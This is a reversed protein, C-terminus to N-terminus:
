LTAPVSSGAGGKGAGVRLATVTLIHVSFPAQSTANVPLALPSMTKCVPSLARTLFVGALLPTATHTSHSWEATLRRAPGRSASPPSRRSSWLPLEHSPCGAGECRPARTGRTAPTTSIRAATSPSLRFGQLPGSNYTSSSQEYHLLSCSVHFLAFHFPNM